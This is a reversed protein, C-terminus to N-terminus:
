VAADNITGGSGDHSFYITRERATAQARHLLEPRAQATSRSASSRATRRSARSTLDEAGITTDAINLATGTTTALINSTSVTDTVVLDHRHQRQRRVSHRARCLSSAATSATSDRRHQHRRRHRGAAQREGHHQQQLRHHRKHPKDGQRHPEATTQDIPLASPSEGGAGSFLFASASPDNTQAM